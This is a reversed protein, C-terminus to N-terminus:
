ARGYKADESNFYRLANKFSRPCSPTKATTVTGGDPHRWMLHNSARHVYWGNAIQSAFAQKTKKNM